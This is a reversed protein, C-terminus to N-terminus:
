INQKKQHLKYSFAHTLAIALADAADDPRPIEKLKLINKVMQQVQNKDAKGYGTIALKVQLPTYDFTEIHVQSATLIIVGRAQGVTIATKANSAFYLQEVAVCNPKYEEFLKKLFESIALLRTELNDTKATGFCGYNTIQPNTMQTKLVGWGVRAIGPDIGIIIM